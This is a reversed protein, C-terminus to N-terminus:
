CYASGDGFLLQLETAPRMCQWGSACGSGMPLLVGVGAITAVSRDWSFAHTLRPPAVAEVGDPRQLLLSIGCPQCGSKSAVDRSAHWCLLLLCPLLLSSSLTTHLLCCHFQLLSSYSGVQLPRLTARPARRCSLCSLKSPVACCEHSGTSEFLCSPM